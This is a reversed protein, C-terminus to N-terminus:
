PMTARLDLCGGSPGGSPSTMMSWTCRSHNKLCWVEGDGALVGRGMSEFAKVVCLSWDSFIINLNPANFSFLYQVKTWYPANM